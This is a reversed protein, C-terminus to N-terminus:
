SWGHPAISRGHPMFGNQWGAGGTTMILLSCLGHAIVTGSGVPWPVAFVMKTVPVIEARFLFMLARQAVMGRNACRKAKATDGQKAVISANGSVIGMEIPM